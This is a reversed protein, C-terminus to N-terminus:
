EHHEFVAVVGLAAGRDAATGLPLDERVSSPCLLAWISRDM